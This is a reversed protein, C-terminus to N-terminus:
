DKGFTRDLYVVVTFRPRQHLLHPRRYSLQFLTPSYRFCQSGLTVPEVGTRLFKQNCIHCRHGCFVVKTLWGSAPLQRQSLSRMVRRTSRSLLRVGDDPM